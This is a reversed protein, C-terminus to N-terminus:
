VGTDVFLGKGDPHKIVKGVEEPVVTKPKKDEIPKTVPRTRGDLTPQNYAANISSIM